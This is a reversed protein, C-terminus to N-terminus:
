SYVEHDTSRGANALYLNGATDFVLAHPNQLGSNAFVSFSGDPAFKLVSHVGNPIDDSSVYLNGAIDFVLGTPNTPMGFVGLFSGTLSFVEITNSRYNSVYITDTSPLIRDATDLDSSRNRMASQAVVMDRTTLLLLIMSAALFLRTQLRMLSSRFPRINKM